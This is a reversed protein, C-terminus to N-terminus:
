AVSQIKIAFFYECHFVIVHSNVLKTLTRHADIGVMIPVLSSQFPLISDNFNSVDFCKNVDCISHTDFQCNMQRYCRPDFFSIDCAFYRGFPYTVTQSIKQNVTCLKNQSKQSVPPTGPARM